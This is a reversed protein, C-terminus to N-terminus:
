LDGKKMAQRILIQSFAQTFFSFDKRYKFDASRETTKIPPLVEEDIVQQLLPNQVIM